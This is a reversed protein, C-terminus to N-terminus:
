RVTSWVRMIGSFLRRVPLSSIFVVNINNLVVSFAMKGLCPNFLAKHLKNTTRKRLFFNRGSFYVHNRLMHDRFAAKMHFKTFAKILSCIEPCSM